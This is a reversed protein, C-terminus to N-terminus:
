NTTKVTSYGPDTCDGTGFKPQYRWDVLWVVDSDKCYPEFQKRYPEWRDPQPLQPLTPFPAKEKGFLKDLECYVQRAEDMTMKKGAVTIEIEVHNM